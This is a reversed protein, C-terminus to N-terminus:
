GADYYKKFDAQHASEVAALTPATIGNPAQLSSGNELASYGPGADDAIFLYRSCLLSLFKITLLSIV